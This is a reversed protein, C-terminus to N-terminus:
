VPFRLVPDSPGHFKDDLCFWDIKFTEKPVSYYSLYPVVIHGGHTHRAKAISRWGFINKGKFVKAFIEVGKAQIALLDALSLCQALDDKIAEYILEGSLFDNKLPVLKNLKHINYKTPGAKELKPYLLKLIWDPYQTKVKRDVEVTYNLRKRKEM